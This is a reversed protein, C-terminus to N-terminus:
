FRSCSGPGIRSDPGICHGPCLLLGTGKYFSTIRVLEHRARSVRGRRLPTDVAENGNGAVAVEDVIGHKRLARMAFPVQDEDEEVLLITKKEEVSAM